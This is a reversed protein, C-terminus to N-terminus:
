AQAKTNAEALYQLPGKSDPPLERPDHKQAHERIVAMFEDLVNAGADNSGNGLKSVVDAPIVFEGDALMAAVSDSTGDGEGKVYRNEMSGLGGESFFSPNHDEVEGGEAYGQKIAPNNGASYLQAPAAAPANGLTFNSNGKTLDATINPLNTANIDGANYGTGYPNLASKAAGTNAGGGGTLRNVLSAITSGTGLLSAGTKAGSLVDALTLGGAAGSNLGLAELAESGLVGDTALGSTSYDLGLEAALEPSLGWSGSGAASANLAAIQAPTLQSGATGAASGMPSWGAFVDGAGAAEAGGAAEAAGFLGLESALYPAGVVAAITALGGAPTTLWDDFNNSKAYTVGFPNGSADLKFRGTNPDILYEGGSLDAPGKASAYLQGNMTRYNSPDVAGTIQEQTYPAAYGSSRYDQPNLWSPPGPVFGVSESYSPAQGTRNYIEEAQAKQGANVSERTGITNQIQDAPVGWSLLMAVQDDYSVPANSDVLNGSDDIYEAM